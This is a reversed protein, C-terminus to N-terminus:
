ISLIHILGVFIIVVEGLFPMLENTLHRFYNIIQVLAISGGPSCLPESGRPESQPLYPLVHNGRSESINLNSHVM